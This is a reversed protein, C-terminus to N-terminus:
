AGKEKAAAAIQARAFAEAEARTDYLDVHLGGYQKQMLAERTMKVLASTGVYITHVRDNRLPSDPRSAAWLGEVLQGFDMEVQSMDTIRYLKPETLTALRAQVAAYIGKLDTVTEVPAIFTAILIPADDSHEIKFAM